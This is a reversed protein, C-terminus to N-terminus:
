GKATSNYFNGKAVEYGHTFGFNYFEESFDKKTCLHGLFSGLLAGVSLGVGFVLVDM